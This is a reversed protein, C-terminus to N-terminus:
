SFSGSQHNQLRVAPEINEATAESHGLLHLGKRKARNWIVLFAPTLTLSIFLGFLLGYAISIAPPQLFASSLGGVFIMPVLGAVTSLSTLLIPRFRSQIADILAEEFEMGTRMNDNFASILVLMNNILIGILAIMGIVSFINMTVGHLLHGIVVGTFAFPLSILVIFTQSFSQFNIIILALMILLLIPAVNAMAETVLGAERNQGEILFRVGPYAAQIEPLITTEIDSLIAPASMSPHALDADVRITRRGNTRRIELSETTPYISAIEELPYHGQPTRILLRALDTFASRAQNEFRLWVRVDDGSRQLNQIEQGFMAGRIQTMVMQTTLGLQLGTQNLEIHLEPNGRQDTDAVDALDPRTELIAKLSAAAMQIEDIREGSVSIDVPLGGFRQEATAGMFRVFRAGHVPGAAERFADNIRFAPIGREEGGMLVIQLQGQHSAPGMMRQVFQVVPKHDTRQANLEDGVRWVAEELEMLRAATTDSPTGPELEIRILQIDDDLYPFFTLPLLGTRLTVVSLVLLLVFAGANWWRWRISVRRTFPMFWRDRFGTLLGAFWRELRTSKNGPSLVKSRTLKAPLFL